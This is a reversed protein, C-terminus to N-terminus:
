RTLLDKTKEKDDTSVKIITRDVLPLLPRLVYELNFHLMLNKKVYYEDFKRGRRYEQEEESVPCDYM